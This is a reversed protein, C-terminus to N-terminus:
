RTIGQILTLDITVTRRTYTDDSAVIDGVYEGPRKTLMESNDVNIILYGFNPYEGIKIRGDATSATLVVEADPARHRIEMDFRIGRLDLQPGTEDGVLYLLSDIWDENTGTEIEAAALPLALISTTM